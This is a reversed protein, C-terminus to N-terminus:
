VVNSSKIVQKLEQQMTRQNDAIFQRIRKAASLEVNPSPNLLMNSRLKSLLLKYAMHQSPIFSDDKLIQKWIDHKSDPLTFQQKPKNQLLRNIQILEKKLTQYNKRFFERLGVVVNEKENADSSKYNARLKVLLLNLSMNSSELRIEDTLIDGWVPNKVAPLILKHVSRRRNAMAGSQSSLGSIQSIENKLSISQQLFFERLEFIIPRLSEKDQTNVAALKLKSLLLKLPFSQTKILTKDFLVNQWVVDSETPIHCSMRVSESANSVDNLIAEVLSVDVNHNTAIENKSLGQINNLAINQRFQCTYKAEPHGLFSPQSLYERTVVTSNSDDIKPVDATIFCTYNGLDCHRWSANVLQDDSVLSRKKILFSIISKDTARALNVHIVSQREDVSINNISWPAYIDLISEFYIRYDKDM